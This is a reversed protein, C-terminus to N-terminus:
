FILNNKSEGFHSNGFFIAVFMQIFLAALIYGFQIDTSVISSKKDIALTVQFHIWLVANMLVISFIPAFAFGSVFYALIYSVISSIGGSIIMLRQRDAFLDRPGLEYDILLALVLPSIFLVSPVTSILRSGFAHGIISGIFYSLGFLWVRRETEDIGANKRFYMYAYVPIGFLAILEIFPNM